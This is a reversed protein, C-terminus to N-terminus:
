KFGTVPLKSLANEHLEALRQKFEDRTILKANPCRNFFSSISLSATEIDKVCYMRLFFQDGNNYWEVIVLEGNDIWQGFVPNSRTGDISSPAVAFCRYVDEIEVSKEIETYKGKKYRINM